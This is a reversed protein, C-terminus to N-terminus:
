RVAAGHYTLVRHVLERQRAHALEVALRFRHEPDEAKRDHEREREAQGEAVGPRPLQLDTDHRPGTVARHGRRERGRRAQHGGHEIGGSCAQTELGTAHRQQDNGPVRHHIAVVRRARLATQRPEFHVVRQLTGTPAFIEDHNSIVAGNRRPRAVDVEENGPQQAHVQQAAPDPADSERDHLGPLPLQELPVQRCRHAPAM